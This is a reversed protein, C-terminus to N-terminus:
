PWPVMRTLVQAAGGCPGRGPDYCARRVCQLMAEWGLDSDELMVAGGGAGARICSLSSDEARLIVSSTVNQRACYMSEKLMEANNAAVGGM